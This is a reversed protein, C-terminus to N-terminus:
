PQLDSALAALEFAAGSDPSILGVGRQGAPPGRHHPHARFRTKWKPRKTGRGKERYRVNSRPTACRKGDLGALVFTTSCTLLFGCSSPKGPGNVPLRDAGGCSIKAKTCM